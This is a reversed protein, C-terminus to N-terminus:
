YCTISRPLGHYFFHNDDGLNLFLTSIGENPM